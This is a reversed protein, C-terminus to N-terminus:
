IISSAYWQINGDSRFTPDLQVSLLSRSAVGARPCSACITSNIGIAM